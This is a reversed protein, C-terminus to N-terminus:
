NEKLAAIRKRVDAAKGCSFAGEGCGKNVCGPGAKKFISPATKFCLALMKDSMERIEWQARECSRLSFFHLLERANMTVIIKTESANPLVYRADEAPIGLKSLKGYACAIQDMVDKFIELAEENNEVSHPIIYPFEDGAKVYRQSKQSYSAVRHRVLQHTLARSVGEIGFTFSIHEFVSFHGMGILKEIFTTQEEDSIKKRLGDMDSDSYCLKAALAVIKESEANHQLLEVRLENKTRTDMDPM